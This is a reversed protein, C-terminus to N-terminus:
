QAAHIGPSGKPITIVKIPYMKPTKKEQAIMPM